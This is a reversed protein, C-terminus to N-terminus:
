QGNLVRKLFEEGSEEAGMVYESMGSALSRDIKAYFEEETMCVRLEDDDVNQIEKAEPPAQRPQKEVTSWVTNQAYRTNGARTGLATRM